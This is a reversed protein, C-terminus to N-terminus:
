ALKELYAGLQKISGLITPNYQQKFGCMDAAKEASHSAGGPAGGIHAFEHMITAAVMWRNTNDLCWASICIDRDNSHTAGYFGSVISPSYNIFITNDRWFHRFTKGKPLTRFYRNCPGQLDIKIDLRSLINYADNVNDLRKKDSATTKPFINYQIITGGAYHETKSGHGSAHTNIKAM